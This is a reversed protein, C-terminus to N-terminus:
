YRGRLLENREYLIRLLTRNRAGLLDELKAKHLLLVEGIPRYKPSTVEESDGTSSM